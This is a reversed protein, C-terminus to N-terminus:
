SETNQHDWFLLSIARAAYIHIIAVINEGIKDLIYLMTRYVRQHKKNTLIPRTVGIEM